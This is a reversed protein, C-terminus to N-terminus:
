TFEVEELAEKKRKVSELRNQWYQNDPHQKLRIECQLIEDEIKRFRRRKASDRKSEKEQTKLQKVHRQEQATMSYKDRLSEYVEKSLRDKYHETLIRLIYTATLQDSQACDQQLLLRLDLPLLVTVGNFSSV